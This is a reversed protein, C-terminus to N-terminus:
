ILFSGVESRKQQHFPGIIATVFFYKLYFDDSIFEEVLKIGPMKENFWGGTSMNVFFEWFFRGMRVYVIVWGGIAATVGTFINWIRVARGPM